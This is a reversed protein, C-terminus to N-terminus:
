LEDSSNRVAVVALPQDAGVAPMDVVLVRFDHGAGHHNLGTKHQQASAGNRRAAQFQHWFLVSAALLWMVNLGAAWALM